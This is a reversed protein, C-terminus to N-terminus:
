FVTFSWHCDIVNTDGPPCIVFTSNSDYCLLVGYWLFEMGYSSWVMLVMLVGYLSKKASSVDSFPHSKQGVISCSHTQMTNNNVLREAWAADEMSIQIHTLHLIM